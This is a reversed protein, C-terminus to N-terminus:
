LQYGQANCAANTNGSGGAPLSVVIATNQASAPIPTPFSVILPTAGVAVGAPFTFTYTATGSILGTVTVNVALGATAGSATCQFGTIYTTKGSAGALTATAAANAVNGSAATIPSGVVNSTPLPNTASVPNGGVNTAGTVPLPNSSTVPILTILNPNWYAVGAMSQAHASGALILAALALRLKGIM